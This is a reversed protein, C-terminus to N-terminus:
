GASNKSEGQEDEMVWRFQVGAIIFPSVFTATNTVIRIKIINIRRPKNENDIEKQKKKKLFDTLIM